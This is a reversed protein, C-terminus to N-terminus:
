KLFEIRGPHPQDGFIVGMNFCPIGSTHTDTYKRITANDDRKEKMKKAAEDLM